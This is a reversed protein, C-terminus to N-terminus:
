KCLYDEALAQYAVEVAEAEPRDKSETIMARVVNLFDSDQEERTPPLPPCIRGQDELYSIFYTVDDICFLATAPYGGQCKVEMVGATLDCRVCDGEKASAAVSALSVAAVVFRLAYKKIM